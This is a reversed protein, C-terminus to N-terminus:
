GTGGARLSVEGSHIARVGDATAVQLVGAEDVGLAIGEIPASGGGLVRVPKDQWVHLQQWEDRFPAFGYLDFAKLVDDLEALLRLLLENRDLQRGLVEEIAVAVYDHPM